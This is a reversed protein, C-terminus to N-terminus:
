DKLRRYVKENDITLELFYNKDLEEELWDPRAVQISNGVIIYKTTSSFIRKYPGTAEAYFPWINDIPARRNALFYLQVNDSWYYIRDTPNTNIEIYDALQEVTKYQDYLILTGKKLFDQYSEKGIKYLVFHHYQRLNSIGSFLFVFGLIIVMPIKSIRNPKNGYRSQFKKYINNLEWSSILSLPPVIILSYHIFGVKTIGYPILSLFLWILIAFGTIITFLNKIHNRILQKIFRYVGVLSLILLAINNIALVTLPLVVISLAGWQNPLEHAYKNGLQFVVLFRSLLGSGAYIGIVISILLIFGTWLFILRKLAYRLSQNQYITYSIIITTVTLISSFFVPKFLLALGSIFGPFLYTWKNSQRITFELGLLIALAIPLNAFIENEASTGKLLMHSNLLSYFFAAWIGTGRESFRAGIFYIIVATAISWPILILKISFESEGLLKFAMAYTYYVAPFHHLPHHTSYLPEGRQILRAHYANAGSDNDFPELLSPIRLLLTWIVILLVIILHYRATKNV